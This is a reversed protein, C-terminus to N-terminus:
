CLFTDGSTTNSDNDTIYVYTNTNDTFVAMQGESDPAAGALDAAVSTAALEVPAPWSYGSLKVRLM